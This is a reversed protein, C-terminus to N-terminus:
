RSSRAQDSMADSRQKKDYKQNRFAIQRCADRCTTADARRSTGAGAHFPKRCGRCIRMSSNHSIAQAFQLWLAGWLNQPRLTLQYDGNSTLVVQAHTGYRTLRSNTFWRLREKCKDLLESRTLTTAEGAQLMHWQEVIDTSVGEGGEIARWLTAAQKMESIAHVWIHKPREDTEPGLDLVGYKARIEFDWDQHCMLRLQNM